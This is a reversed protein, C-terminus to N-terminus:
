CEILIWNEYQEPDVYAEMDDVLLMEGVCAGQVFGLNMYKGGWKVIEVDALGAPVLGEQRLMDWIVRVREEGVATFYRCM